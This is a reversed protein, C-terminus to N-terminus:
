KKAEGEPWVINDDLAYCRCGQHGKSCEHMARALPDDGRSTASWAGDPAIVFARPKRLTLFKQYGKHGAENLYPVAAYDNLLAFHTPPPVPTPHTWVVYDDVAYLQCNKFQKQGEKLASIVPDFGGTHISASGSPDIVFVRPM